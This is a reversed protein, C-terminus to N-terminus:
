PQWFSRVGAGRLRRLLLCLRQTLASYPEFCLLSIVEPVFLRTSM